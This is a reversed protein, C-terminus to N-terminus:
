EVAVLTKLQDEAKQKLIRRVSAVGQDHEYLIESDRANPAMEQLVVRDQELVDWHLKELKNRYLFRWVNKQWGSVKRTRWFFVQCNEEDVPTAFGVIYFSGGPGASKRYPIALRMWLAGTEGIEVWDFNVDRQAVKEFILGSNTEVIQMEASKDGFAMSHSVAHLYAGHMPDMVNDIAYRYNCNWKATCLFNSYEDGVLEDPLELKPPDAHSGDGFYLFIAGHIERVPYNKILKKGAMPSKEVAPVNVVTGDGDIEIGHYWCAIRDGLNWGLSVRAGRHPCRDEIAHVNGDNDRWLAINESLRTIGVPDSTVGWSPLVPHWLNQLGVNVRQNIMEQTVASMKRDKVKM